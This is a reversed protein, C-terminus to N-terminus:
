LHSNIFKEEYEKVILSQRTRQDAFGQINLHENKQSKRCFCMFTGISLVGLSIIIIILVQWELIGNGKNNGHDTNEINGSNGTEKTNDINDDSNDKDSANNEEDIIIIEQNKFPAAKAFGVTKNDISYLAYFNKLFVDGLIADFPLVYGPPAPQMQQILLYCDFENRALFYASPPINFSAGNFGFILDPVKYINQCDCRYNLQGEIYKCNGGFSDLQSLINQIVNGPLLVLSTGSDFIISVKETSVAKGPGFNIELLDAAWHVQEKVTVFQFSSLAYKPDYGGFIIEGTVEGRATPKDGLYMSFTRSAILGSSKLIEVLGPFATDKGQSCSLGLVGDIHSPIDNVKQALVLDYNPLTLSGLNIQETIKYGLISGKGYIISKTFKPDPKCTRSKSCSFGNYPSSFKTSDRVWLISSGTDLIVNLAKSPSGLQIVGFYNFNNFNIINMGSRELFNDDQQSQAPEEIELKMLPMRLLQSISSSFISLLIVLIFFVCDKM